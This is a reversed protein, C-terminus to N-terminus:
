KNLVRLAQMTEQYSTTPPKAVLTNWLTTLADVIDDNKDGVGTFNSVEKAFDELWSAREPLLIKGNNWASAVPQANSLKDGETPESKLNLGERTLFEVIAKEQGGTRTHLKASYEYQHQKLSALVVTIEAQMRQMGTVYLVGNKELGKLIVTYDAHSKKTYALDVAIAKKYGSDPLQKYYYIDRFVTGGRVIPTQQYLSAFDWENTEKRRKLWELDYRESWLARGEEDIAPMILTKWNFGAFNPEKQIQELVWGTLDNVHWRTQIIVLNADPTLRTLLASTFWDIVNERKLPSEAEKRDKIPDDIVALSAGMGTISGGVGSAIFGGGRKLEWFTVATADETLETTYFYKRFAKGTAIENRIIRSRKYALSATYSAYMVTELENTGLRWELFAALTDSKGHRPPINLILADKPQLGELAEVIKGIHDAYHYNPYRSQYYGALSPPKTTPIHPM